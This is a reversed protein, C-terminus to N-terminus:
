VAISKGKGSENSLLLPIFWRVDRRPRGEFAIYGHKDGFDISSRLDARLQGRHNFFCNKFEDMITPSVDLSELMPREQLGKTAAVKENSDSAIDEKLPAKPLQHIVCM